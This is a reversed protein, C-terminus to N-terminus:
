GQIAIRAVSMLQLFKVHQTNLPMSSWLHVDLLKPM